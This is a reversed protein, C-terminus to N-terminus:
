FATLSRAQQHLLCLLGCWFLSKLFSFLSNHIIPYGNTSTGVSRDEASHVFVCNDDDRTRGDSFLAFMGEKVVHIPEGCLAHRGIQTRALNPDADQASAGSNGSCHIGKRSMAESQRM